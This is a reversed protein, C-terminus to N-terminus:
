PYLRRPARMRRIVIQVVDPDHRTGYAVAVHCILSVPIILWTRALGGNAVVLGVGLWLFLAVERRVGAVLIPEYLSRFVPVEFGPPMGEM